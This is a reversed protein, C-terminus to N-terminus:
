TCHSCAVAHDRRHLRSPRGCRGADSVPQGEAKPGAHPRDTQRQGQIQGEKETGRQRKTWMGQTRCSTQRQGQTQGGRDRQGNTKPGAHRRATQGQTQGETETGREKETQGHAEPGEHPRDTQGQIQGESETGGRDRQGYAKPRAHPRDTQREMRTDTGRNQGGRNRQRDTHRQDQM